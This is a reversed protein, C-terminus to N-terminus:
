LVITTGGEFLWHPAYLSLPNITIDNNKYRNYILRPGQLKLDKNVLTIVSTSRSVGNSFDINRDFKQKTSNIIDPLM